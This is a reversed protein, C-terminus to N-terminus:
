DNWNNMNFDSKQFSEWDNTTDGSDALMWDSTNRAQNGGQNGGKNGGRKGGQNGGIRAGSGTQKPPLGNDRYHPHNKTNGRTSAGIGRHNGRGMMGHNHFGMQSQNGMGSMQMGHYNGQGPFSGAGLLGREQQGFNMNNQGQGAMQTALATNREMREMMERNQAMLEQVMNNTRAGSDGTQGGNGGGYFNSSYSENLYPSAGPSYNVQKPGTPGDMQMWPKRPGDFMSGRESYGRKMQTTSGTFSDGGGAFFSMQPQGGGFNQDQLKRRAAQNPRDRHVPQKDPLLNEVLGLRQIEEVAKEAIMNKVLKRDGSEADELSVDVLCNTQSEADHMKFLKLNARFLMKSQKEDEREIPCANRKNAEVWTQSWDQYKEINTVHVMKNKTCCQDLLTVFKSQGIYASCLNEYEPQPKTLNLDKAIQIRRNKSAEDLSDDKLIDGIKEDLLEQKSIFFENRQEEFETTRFTKEATDSFKENAPLLVHEDPYFATLMVDAAAERALKKPRPAVNDGGNPYTKFQFKRQITPLLEKHAITLQKDLCGMTISMCQKADDWSFQYKPQPLRQKLCMEQLALMPHKPHKSKELMAEKTQSETPNLKYAKNESGSANTSPFISDMHKEVPNKVPKTVNKPQPNENEVKKLESMRAINKEIEDRAATQIRKAAPTSM